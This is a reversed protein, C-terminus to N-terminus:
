LLESYVRPGRFSLLAGGGGVQWLAGLLYLEWWNPVQQFASGM